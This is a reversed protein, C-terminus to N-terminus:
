CQISIYVVEFNIKGHRKLEQFLKALVFSDKGGSMCVAIKDNEQILDYKNIAQVFPRYLKSRYRKILAREIDVLNM